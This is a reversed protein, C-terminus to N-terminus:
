EIAFIRQNNNDCNLAEGNMLGHVFCEGVFRYRHKGHKRLIYPTRGGLLVVIVCGYRSEEPGLGMYGQKSTFFRRGYAARHHLEMFKAARRKDEQSSHLPSYHKSRRGYHPNEQLKLATWYQFWAVYYQSYTESTADTELEGDAILTRIYTNSVDEGSPCHEIKHAMVEWVGWRIDTAAKEADHFERALYGKVRSRKSRISGQLPVYEHFTDGVRYLTDVLVGTAFLIRNDQSFSVIPQSNNSASMSPFGSDLVFSHSVPHVEWDPVWTPLKSNLRYHHCEAANLVDLNRYLEM